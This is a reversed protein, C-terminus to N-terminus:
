LNIWDREDWLGIRTCFVAINHKEIIKYLLYTHYGLFNCQRPLVYQATQRINKKRLHFEGDIGFRHREEREIFRLSGFSSLPLDLCYPGSVHQNSSATQFYIKQNFPNWGDSMRKIVKFRNIAPLLNDESFDSMCYIDFHSLSTVIMGVSFGGTNNMPIVSLFKLGRM